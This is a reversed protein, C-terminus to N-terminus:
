DLNGSVDAIPHPNAAEISKIYTTFDASEGLSHCASKWAKDIVELIPLDLGLMQALKQAAGVDKSMLGLSFGLSFKRSLVQSPFMGESVQSRGTSTNIVQLLTTPEIGFRQGLVLGEATASITAAAIANNIAKAAHGAGLAGVHIHRKGLVNLIPQIHKIAHLENSGLMIVLQGERALPVGGSVPADVMVIGRQALEDGLVRTGEADSSSMDIVVLGKKAKHLVGHEGTLVDRVIQGNPLMTIVVDVIQGFEMMNSVHREGFADAVAPNLDHVSVDFGHEILRRAMPEGMNGLGIFGVKM